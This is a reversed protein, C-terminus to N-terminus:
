CVAPNPTRPAEIAMFRKSWFEFAPEKPKEHSANVGMLQLSNIAWISGKKGGAGSDDWIMRPEFKSPIVWAKPVCRVLEPPPEEPTTTGVMGMAVHDISPPIPKRSIIYM